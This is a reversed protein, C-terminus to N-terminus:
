ELAGIAPAVPRTSAKADRPRYAAAAANGKAKLPSGAGPTLGALAESRLQAADDATLAGLSLLPDAVTGFLYSHGGHVLWTKDGPDEMAAGNNWWYNYDVSVFGFAHSANPHNYPNLNAGWAATRNVFVNNELTNRANALVRSVGNEGPTTVLDKPYAGVGWCQAVGDGQDNSCESGAGDTNIRTDVERLADGGNESSFDASFHITNGVASCDHCGSFEMAGERGNLLLNNRAVIRRGEYAYHEASGPTEVSWYYTADTNEGGLELRRVNYLVNGEFTVDVSGGKAEMGLGQGTGVITNALYCGRHVAVTDIGHRSVQRITTGVVWVDAAQNFKIGDSGGGAAGVGSPEVEDFVNQITVRRVLIHHAPLYRGYVNFDLHGAKLGAGKPNDALGSVHIGAEAFLPKPADHFCKGEVDCSGDAHYAGVTPPGITLGDFALYAVHVLNFGQTLRTANPKPDKAVILLPAAATREIGFFYLSGVGANTAAYEGPALRIRVPESPHAAATTLIADHLAAMGGSPELDINFWASEAIASPFLQDALAAGCPDEPPVYPSVDQTSGGGGDASAASSAKSGDSCGVLGLLGIVAWIAKRM